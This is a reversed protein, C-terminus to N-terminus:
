LEGLGINKFSNKKSLMPRYKKALDAKAKSNDQALVTVNGGAKFFEDIQASLSQRDRDVEQQCRM